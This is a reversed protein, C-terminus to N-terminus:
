PTNTHLQATQSFIGALFNLDVGATQLQFRADLLDANVARLLRQADLVDLIGREGFRYAAEAVRLAAEAERVAGTSLAQVRVKAIDLSKSALLIQQELDTQRGELLIRARELEFVAEQTPGIKQDFLPIQLSATLVGQRIDPERLQGYRVDLGGWKSARAERLKAERRSVEAQLVKIEPNNEKASLQIKDISFAEIPDTLSGALRWKSPLQGAALRNIALISQEALLHVTQSKQRANIVEADAKIIEYRAAEGSDVRIKVRVRIEELLKLADAAARAEATRLLYEYAKIRTQAALENTNAAFVHEAADNGFSAAEIRARRIHPNEIFQAVAWGGVNGGSIGPQIPKYSGLTSEIRPNQVASASTISSAAIQRNRQAAQLSPNYRVVAQVVDELTLVSETDSATSQAQLSPSLLATLVVLIPRFYTRPSPSQMKYTFLRKSPYM